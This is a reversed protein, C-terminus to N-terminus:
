RKLVSLYFDMVQAAMREITFRQAIRAQLLGARRQYAEPQVLFDQMMASLGLVDEAALLSMGTGETIEPIGGVNTLIMPKQAAGAELVIYPFSEARSPMVLCQGLAFGDRAPLRGHFRVAGELGLKLALAQFKTMDPGDGVIELRANPRAERLSALAALLVDVGKLQRLEGIFVFDSGAELLPVPEFEAPGVGNPIIMSPCFGIGVVEAFKGASYASEFILGSSKRALWREAGLFLRGSLSAPAYHLSGGHPTYFGYCPRKQRRLTYAAMRAYAGGKAGHGHLIQAEHAVALQRVKAYAMVDGPGPLRPMSVAHVGLSCLRSLLDIGPQAAPAMTRSDFIIGVEHGLSAQEAALDVVHRFLGGVPARLCHLIRLNRSM